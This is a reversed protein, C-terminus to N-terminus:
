EDKKKKRGELVGDVLMGAKVSLKDSRRANEAKNETRALPDRGSLVLADFEQTQRLPDTAMKFYKSDPADRSNEAMVIKPRLNREM